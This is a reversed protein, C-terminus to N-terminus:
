GPSRLAEYCCALSVMPPGVALACFADLVGAPEPGGQTARSGRAALLAEVCSCYVSTVRCYLDAVDLGSVTASLQSDSRRPNPAKDLDPLLASTRRPALPCAESGPELAHAAFGLASRLPGTSLEYSVAFRERMWVLGLGIDPADAARQAPPRQNSGDASAARQWRAASPRLGLAIVAGWAYLDLTWQMGEWVDSQGVRKAARSDALAQGCTSALDAVVEEMWGGSSWRHGSCAPVVVNEWLWLGDDGM